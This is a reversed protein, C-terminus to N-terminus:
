CKSLCLRIRENLKYQEKQHCSLCLSILNMLCNNHKDGDKHHVDLKRFYSKQPVGCHQCVHGDRVRVQEKLHKNFVFPYEEGSRGDIYRPNKTLDSYLKALTTSIKLRVESRKSPNVYDPKRSLRVGLGIKRRVKKPTPVGKNWSGNKQNCINACKQSCFGRTGYLYPKVLFENKCQKCRVTKHPRYYYNHNKRRHQSYCGRSCFQSDRCAPVSFVTKCQKCMLKM